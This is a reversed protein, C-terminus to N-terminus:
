LNRLELELKSILKDREFESLYCREANKGMAKLEDKDLAAMKEIQRALLVPSSANCTLGASWKDIIQAGDGDLSGIIPKGNALYAQLKAPITISFLETNTLSVLMADAHSFYFPMMEVPKKGLFHFTKGLEKKEVEEEAWKKMLGDGLILFHINKNKKLITAAEIISEFDQSSGINGAFMLKFGDKPINEDRYNTNIDVSSFIAEAWQPWYVIKKELVGMSLIKPAFGKSSIFIKDCYKYIWKVIGRVCSLLFKNKLVGTAELSEPWLDLVWIIIPARKFFKLIIAPIAVTIPSPEYIFIKEFKGKVLFPALLSAFFLFSVYNMVIKLNKNKGRPILPVRIIKIKGLKEQYPGLYSYGKFFEGEPYNPLGTFVTVDHGREILGNCLDLIKFQEPWFYQTVVLIRM